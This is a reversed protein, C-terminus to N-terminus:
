RHHFQQVATLDEKFLFCELVVQRASALLGTVIPKMTCAREITSRQQQRPTMNCFDATLKNHCINYVSVGYMNHFICCTVFVNSVDQLNQLLSPIKLIRFRNKVRGFTCEVDKRASSIRSFLRLFKACSTIVNCRQMIRWSHYGGDCILYVGLFTAAGSPSLATWAFATFISLTRIRTLWPDM